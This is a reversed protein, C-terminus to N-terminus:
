RAQSLHPSKNHAEQPLTTDPTASHAEGLILKLLVLLCVVALLQAAHGTRLTLLSELHSVLEPLVQRSMLCASKTAVKGADVTGLSEPLLVIQRSVQFGVQPDFRVFTVFTTLSKHVPRSQLLM